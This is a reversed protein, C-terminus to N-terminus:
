TRFSFSLSFSLQFLSVAINGLRQNEFMKFLQINRQSITERFTLHNMFHEIEQEIRKARNQKLKYEKREQAAELKRNLIKKAQIRERSKVIM